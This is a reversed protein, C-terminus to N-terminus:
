FKVRDGFYGSFIELSISGRVFSLFVEEDEASIVVGLNALGNKVEEIKSARAEVTMAQVQDSIKSVELELRSEEKLRDDKDTM